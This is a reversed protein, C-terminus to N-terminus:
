THRGFVQSHLLRAVAEGHANWRRCIGTRTPEPNARYRRLAQAPGNMWAPRDTKAKRGVRRLSAHGFITKGSSGGPHHRRCPCLRKAAAVLWDYHDASMLVQERRGHRTVRSTSPSVNLM